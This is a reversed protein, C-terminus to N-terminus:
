LKNVTSISSKILFYTGIIDKSSIDSYIESVFDSYIEFIQLESDLEDLFEINLVLM